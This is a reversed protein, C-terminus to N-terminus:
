GNATRGDALPVRSLEGLEDLSLGPVIDRVILGDAAVDIVALDTYIRSV